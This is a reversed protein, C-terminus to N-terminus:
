INVTASYIKEIAEITKLGDIAGTFTQDDKNQMVSILHDYVEKHNSMSGKYFNYDNAANGASSSLQINDASKIYEVESLYEGGIRITAKEAVITLAIEHNKKYTNV